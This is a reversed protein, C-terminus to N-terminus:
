TKQKVACAQCNNFASGQMSRKPHEGGHIRVAESHWTRHAEQIENEAEELAEMYDNEDKHSAVPGNREALKGAGGRRLLQDM